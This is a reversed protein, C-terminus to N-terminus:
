ECIFDNMSIYVYMHVQTDKFNAAAAMHGRDYYDNNLYDQPYVKINEYKHQKENYFNMQRKKSVSNNNNNNNNSINTVPYHREYVWSPNRRYHDYCIILESEHNNGKIKKLIIDNPSTPLNINIKSVMNEDHLDDCLCNIARISSIKLCSLLVFPSKWM